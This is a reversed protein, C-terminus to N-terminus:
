PELEAARIPRGPKEGFTRADIELTKPHTGKGDNVHGLILKKDLDSAKALDDFSWGCEKRLTGINRELATPYHKRNASNDIEASLGGPQARPAKPSSAM